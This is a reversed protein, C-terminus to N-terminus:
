RMLMMKRTSHFGDTTLDYFYIGSPVAAGNRDRGDWLVETEGAGVSGDFPAAVLRGAVDYIRVTAHAPAPVSFKVATIGDSAPRFPNPRNQALWFAGTRGLSAVASVPGFFIAQEGERTELKYYYLTGDVVQEDLFAYSRASGESAPIPSDNLADYGGDRRGVSRHLYFEGLDSERTVRWELLVGEGVPAASFRELLVPASSEVVLKIVQSDTEGTFDTVEVNFYFIGSERAYGSVVGAANMSFGDPLGPGAALAFIRPATGGVAAISESYLAPVTATPLDRTEINLDDAGYFYVMGQKEATEITRPTTQGLSIRGYMTKGLDGGGYLDLFRMCHGLEHTMVSQIDYEGAVGSASWTWAVDDFIIDNELMAGTGTNFWSYNTALSGGTTGWAIENFNNYFESTAATAGGYAFSFDAGSEANWEQFGKICAALVDDTPDDSCNPNILMPEGMPESTQWSTSSAGFTVNFTKGTGPDGGVNVYVMGSSAYEPVECIIQTDSWSTIVDANVTPTGMPDRTFQVNSGGQTAGFGTGTITVSVGAGSAGTDPTIDDIVPSGPDPVNKTLEIDDVFAGKGTGSADSQFIFAIYVTADGVLGSIDYQTETWTGSGSHAIFGSFNVGDGSSGWFLYDGEGATEVSRWFTLEAANADSLDFPGYFAWTKMSNPYDSGSPLASVGAACEWMSYSGGHVRFTEKGWEHGTGNQDTLSWAGTPFTGEFDETMLVIEGTPAPEPGPGEAEAASHDLEGEAAPLKLEARRIVAGDAGVSGEDLGSVGSLRAIHSRFEQIKMDAGMVVGDEVDLKGQHWGVLRFYEPRLFLVVEEGVEFEPVDSAVLGIEGVVGGPMEFVVPGGTPEGKLYQVPEVTVTTKITRRGEDWHPVLSVVHGHVITQSADTLESLSMPAVAGQAPASWCLLLALATAGPIGRDLRM